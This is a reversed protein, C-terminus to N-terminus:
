NSSIVLVGNSVSVSYTGGGSPAPAEGSTYFSNPAANYANAADTLSFSPDAAVQQAFYLLVAAEVSRENILDASQNAETTLDIYKPVAIATIIGLVVIVIVLEILTFGKESMTNIRIDNM